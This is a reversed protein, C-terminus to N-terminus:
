PHPCTKTDFKVILGHRTHHEPHYLEGTLAVGNGCRASTRENVRRYLSAAPDNETETFWAGM